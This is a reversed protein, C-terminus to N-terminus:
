KSINFRQQRRKIAENRQEVADIVSTPLSIPEFPYRREYILTEYGKELAVPVATEADIYATRFVEAPQGSAEDAALVHGGDTYEEDAELQRSFQRYVDCPRGLYLATGIFYKPTVWSLEEWRGLGSTRRTERDAPDDFLVAETQPDFQVVLGRAIYYNIERENAYRVTERRLGSGYVVEIEAVQRAAVRSAEESFVERDAEKPRQVSLRWRSPDPIQHSFAQTPAPAPTIEVATEQSFGSIVSSAILCVSFYLWFNTKVSRRRRYM